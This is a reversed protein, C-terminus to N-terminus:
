WRNRLWFSKPVFPAHPAGARERLLLPGRDGARGYRAMGGPAPCDRGSRYGLAAALLAEDPDGLRHGFDDALACGPLEVGEVRGLNAPSFGDSYAGFGKANVGQFQVSFYTVGCNDAPYFGYPKGCTTTGILIVDIDIGRLGNVIAESASCTGGTTLVFLRSLSVSPLPEGAALGVAFGLTEAHFPTPRLVRGTVPNYVTHKDNFRLEDFARGATATPGAVMYALQSAIDLLGGGNYRLDLILDVISAEEFRRMAEILQREAPATHDNFVMYGVPGSGTGLVQVDLVPRSTIEASTLTVTRTGAAGLDRVEFRHSEGPASPFLGANLTDVDDGEVVDVGDVTLVEAGRALAASAAPSDPETYAVLVKRPPSVSVLAWTAGFGAAVGSLALDRWAQTPYTYHFRDKYAGSPTRAFTRLRDFYEATECCAPNVDEIEDYWLYLDNSWSRLWNNEDLRTGQTDPHESGARPAACLDKFRVADEFVGPSWGSGDDGPFLINDLWGGHPGGGARPM